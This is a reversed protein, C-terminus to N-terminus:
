KRHVDTMSTYSSLFDILKLNIKLSHVKIKRWGAGEMGGEKQEKKEFYIIHIYYCMKWGGCLVSGQSYKQKKMEFFM